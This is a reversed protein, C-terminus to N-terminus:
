DIPLTVIDEKTLNANSYKGIWRQELMFRHSLEVRSIKDTIVIAQFMRNETFQKGFSNIPYNGYPFNEILGYGLRVQVKPHIQYNISRRWLGIQWKNFLDTRRWHYETIFSIRSSLKFTGNVSFWGITNNDSLRTNQAQINISFIIILYVVFLFIRNM